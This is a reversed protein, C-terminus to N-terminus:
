KKDLIGSRIKLFRDNKDFYIELVDDFGLFDAGHKFQLLRIDGQKEEHDFRYYSTEFKNRFDVFSSADTLGEPTVFTFDSERVPSEFFFVGNKQSDYKDLFMNRYQYRYQSDGNLDNKIFKSKFSWNQGQFLGSLKPLKYHTNKYWIESNTLDLVIKRDDSMNEKALQESKSAMEKAYNKIEAEKSLPTPTMSPREVAATVQLTKIQLQLRQNELKLQEIELKLKEVELTEATVPAKSEESFTPSLGLTALVISLMIMTRSFKM